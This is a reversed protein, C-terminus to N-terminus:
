NAIEIGVNLYYVAANYSDLWGAGGVNQWRWNWSERRVGWRGPM